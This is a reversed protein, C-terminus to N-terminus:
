KGTPTSVIVPAAARLSYDGSVVVDVSPLRGVGGPALGLTATYGSRYRKVWSTTLGFFTSAGTSKWGNREALTAEFEYVQRITLTSTFDLEVLPGSWGGYTTDWSAPTSQIRGDMESDPPLTKFVPDARLIHLRLNGPDGTGRPPAPSCATLGIAAVVLAVTM